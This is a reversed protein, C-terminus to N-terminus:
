SPHIGVAHSPAPSHPHIPGLFLVLFFCPFFRTQRFGGCGTVNGDLVMGWTVPEFFINHRLDAARIRRAVSDHMRQLNKKGAVGPLALTPDEYLNGAFPEQSSCIAGCGPGSAPSRTPALSSSFASSFHVLRAHAHGLRTPPPPSSPPPTQTLSLDRGLELFYM